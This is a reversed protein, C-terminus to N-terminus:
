DLSVIYVRKPREIKNRKQCKYPLKNQENVIRDILEKPVKNQQEIKKENIFYQKAEQKIFSCIRIGGNSKSPNEDKIAYWYQLCQCIDKYSMNDEDHLYKIDRNVKAKNFYDGLYTQAYLLIQEKDKNDQLYQEECKVHAYKRGNIKSQTEVYGEIDSNIDQGCIACKYIRGAM